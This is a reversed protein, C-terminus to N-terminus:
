QARAIAAGIRAPVDGAIGAPVRPPRAAMHRTGRFVFRAYRVGRTGVVFGYNGSVLVDVSAALQGTRVPIGNIQDAARRATSEMIPAQRHAAAGVARLHREARDLGTVQIARAM